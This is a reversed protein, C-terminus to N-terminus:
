WNWLKKVVKDLQASKQIVAGLNDTARLFM